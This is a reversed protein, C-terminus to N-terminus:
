VRGSLRRRKAEAYATQQARRKREKEEAVRIREMLLGKYTQQNGQNLSSNHLRENVLCCGITFDDDFHGHHWRYVGRLVGSSALLRGFFCEVPVCYRGIMKNYNLETPNRPDKIPHLQRLDPTSNEPGIYGLDVLIAWFRSHQDGPLSANENPLKLLYELYRHYDGKMIEFDHVSGPAHKGVFVCYHPEHAMVAVETKLGYIRNKGDWYIKAEEFSAKPCHCETTHNDILLAVQPIITGSLPVPCRPTRLWKDTLASRLHPRIRNINDEIRSPSINELVCSLVQYDQALKFWALYCVLMDLYSSKPRAGPQRVTVVYPQLLQHIAM